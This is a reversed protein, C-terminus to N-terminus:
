VTLLWCTPHSYQTGDVHLSLLDRAHIHLICAITSNLNLNYNQIGDLQDSTSLPAKQRGHLTEEIRGLFWTVTLSFTKSCTRLSFYELITTSHHFTARHSHHILAEIHPTEWLPKNAALCLWICNRLYVADARFIWVFSSAHYVQHLGTQSHLTFWCFCSAQKNVVATIQQTM